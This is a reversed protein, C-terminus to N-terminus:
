HLLNVEGTLIQLLNNQLKEENDGIGIARLISIVQSPHPQLLYIKPDELM